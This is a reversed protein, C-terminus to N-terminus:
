PALQKKTWNGNQDKTYLVRSHLNYPGAQWFEVTDPILRYGGWSQPVPVDRNRYFETLEERRQFLQEYSTIEHDQPSILAVIQSMKKKKYFVEKSEAADVPLAKGILTIQRQNSFWNFTASAAPNAKLEVFKRSNLDGFFAIGKNDIIKAFMARTSPQCRSDVTGLVFARTPLIGMNEEADKMWAVIQEMPDAEMKSLQLPPRCDYLKEQPIDAVVTGSVLLFCLIIKKLM